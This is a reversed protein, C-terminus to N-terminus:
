IWTYYCSKEEKPLCWYRGNHKLQNHRIANLSNNCVYLMCAKIKIKKVISHSLSSIEKKKEWIM